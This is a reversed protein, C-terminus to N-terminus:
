KHLHGKNSENYETPAAIDQVTDSVNPRAEESASQMNPAPAAESDSATAFATATEPLEDATPLAASDFHKRFQFGDFASKPDPVFEALPDDAALAFEAGRLVWLLRNLYEAPIETNEGNVGEAEYAGSWIGAASRAVRMNPLIRAINTEVVTLAASSAGATRRRARRLTATLVAASQADPVFYVVARTKSFVEDFLDALYDPDDIERIRGRFLLVVDTAELLKLSLLVSQIADLRDPVVSALAGIATAEGALSDASRAVLAAIRDPNLYDKDKKLGEYLAQRSVSMLQAARSGSLGLAELIEVDLSSM